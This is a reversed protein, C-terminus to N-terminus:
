PKEVLIKSKIFKPLEEWSINPIKISSDSTSYDATIHKGTESLLKPKDTEDIFKIILEGGIEKATYFTVIVAPVNNKRRYIASWANAFMKALLRAPHTTRKIWEVSAMDIMAIVIAIETVSTLLLKALRDAEQTLVTPDTDTIGRSELYEAFYDNLPNNMAYNGINKSLPFLKPIAEALEPDGADAVIKVRLQTIYDIDSSTKMYQDLYKAVELNFKDIDIQGM